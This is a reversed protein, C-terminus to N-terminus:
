HAVSIGGGSTMPGPAKWRVWIAYLVVLVTITGVMEFVAHPGISDYLRGGIATCFLIGVAGSMNFLGVVAGRSEKPAEQGILTAAGVFASIQGIGLLIFFVLSEKALPDEVLDTFLFGLAALTMCIVTGTVRNVKDLMFGMVPLWVLGAGTAAAFLLRGQASAAAPDMGAAIGANTGWLNVFTGIVVLDGRAIFACAYALAIRPNRAAAFGSIVLEKLPPRQEMSVVTGKKLGIAVVIASVFCLGAVIFHTIYGAMEQTYGDKVFSRMLGGLGVTLVIVGLGNLTGVFANAKGRAVNAPYDAVVTQLMATALGIGLAYVMRYGTLETVTDAFPYLAYAIAMFVFGVAFVQRRGIRDALIGAPAFVLLLIVETWAALDGSIQGQEGQPIKLYVNLVYPTGVGIFALLGIATFAAYLLTGFNSRSVGEALTVFLFKRPAAAAPESSSM